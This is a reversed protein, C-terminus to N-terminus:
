VQGGDDEDEHGHKDMVMGVVRDAMVVVVVAAVVAATVLIDAVISM